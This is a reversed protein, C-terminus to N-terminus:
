EGELEGRQGSLDLGEFGELANKLVIPQENEDVGLDSPMVIGLFDEFCALRVFCPQSPGSPFLAMSRRKDGGYLKAVQGFEKLGDFPVALSPALYGRKRLDNAIDVYSAKPFPDGTTCEVDTLQDMISGEGLTLSLREGDFLVLAVPEKSVDKLARIFSKSPTITVERECASFPDHIIACQHGNTATIIAGGDGDPRVNIGGQREKPMDPFRFLDAAIIAKASCTFVPDNM